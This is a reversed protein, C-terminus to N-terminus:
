IYIWQIYVLLVVCLNSAQLIENMIYVHYDDIGGGFYSHFEPVSILVSYISFYYNIFCLSM